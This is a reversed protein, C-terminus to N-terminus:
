MVQNTKICSNMYTFNSVNTLIQLNCKLNAAKLDTWQMQKSQLYCKKSCKLNSERKERDFFGM